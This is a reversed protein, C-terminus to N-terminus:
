GRRPARAPSRETRGAADHELDLELQSKPTPAEQQPKTNPILKLLMEVDQVYKEAYITPPQGGVGMSTIAGKYYTLDNMIQKIKDDLDTPM